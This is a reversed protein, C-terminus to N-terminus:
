DFLNGYTDVALNPYIRVGNLESASFGTAERVFNVTYTKTDNASTVFLMVPHLM